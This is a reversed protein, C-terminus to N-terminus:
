EEDEDIVVEDEHYVDESEEETIHFEEDDEYLNDAIGSKTTQDINNITEDEQVNENTEITQNNLDESQSENLNVDREQKSYNDIDENIADDLVLTEDVKKKKRKVYVGKDIDQLRAILDFLKTKDISQLKIKVKNALKDCKNSLEYYIADMTLFIKDKNSITSNKIKDKCEDIVEKVQAQNHKLKALSTMMQQLKLLGIRKLWTDISALRDQKDEPLLDSQEIISLKELMKDRIYTEVEEGVGNNTLFEKYFDIVQVNFQPEYEEFEFTTLENHKLKVFMEFITTIDEVDVKHLSVKDSLFPKIENVPSTFLVYYSIANNLYKIDKTVRLFRKESLKIAKNRNAEIQPIVRTFNIAKLTQIIDFIERPELVNTQLFIKLKDLIENLYETSLNKNYNELNTNHKFYIGIRTTFNNFWRVFISAKTNIKFGGEVVGNTNNAELLKSTYDNILDLLYQSNLKGEAKYEFKSM